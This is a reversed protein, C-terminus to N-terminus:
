HSLLLRGGRLQGGFDVLVSKTPVPVCGRMADPNNGTAM